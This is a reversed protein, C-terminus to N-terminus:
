RLCQVYATQTLYILSWATTQTSPNKEQVVEVVASMQNTQRSSTALTLSLYFEKCELLFNKMFNNANNVVGMVTLIDLKEKYRSEAEDYMKISNRIKRAFWCKFCRFFPELKMFYIWFREFFHYTFKNRSSFVDFM